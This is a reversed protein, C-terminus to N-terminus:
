WSNKCMIHWTVFFYHRDEEIGDNGLAFLNYQQIYLTSHIGIEMKMDYDM